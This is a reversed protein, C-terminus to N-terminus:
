GYQTPTHGGGGGKYKDTHRLFLTLAHGLMQLYSAPNLPPIDGGVGQVHGMMMMQLYIAMNLPYVDGEGRYKNTQNLFLIDSHM